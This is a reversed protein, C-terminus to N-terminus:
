QTFNEEEGSERQRERDRHSPWTLHFGGRGHVAVGMTNVIDGVHLKTAFLADLEEDIDDM